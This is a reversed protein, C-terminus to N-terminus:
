TWWPSRNAWKDDIGEIKRTSFRPVLNDGEVRLFFQRKLHPYNSAPIDSQRDIAFAKIDEQILISFEQHRDALVRDPLGWMQWYPETLAFDNIKGEGGVGRGLKPSPLRLWLRPRPSPASVSGYQPLGWMQLRFCWGTELGRADFGGVSYLGSTIKKLKGGTGLYKVLCCDIELDIILQKVTKRNLLYSWNKPLPKFEIIM